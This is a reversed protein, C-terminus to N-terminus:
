TLKVANSNTRGAEVDSINALTVQAINRLAEKTFFAQHATIVVNPFSQLLQFTDDQIVTDSLDEFFLSGEREYVDIGFYGVRGSKIAEIVANTDILGGRSTNILMSGPKFHQISEANILHHTSPLLPCHLSIIDSRTLLIPLEVYDVGIDACAPNVRVDYALLKCGFGNMIQAFCQGIKGTGVIGITKGHLDFGLLGDLSFNDDRVRNYARYLKRNLAMILGVAHEAVAYPSYAPVRMVTIGLEEAVSLNINNFGACRLAILKTGTAAIARLTDEDLEDNIFVCVAPFGAALSATKPTLRPEFFTLEHNYDENIEIFSHKDYLKTNFFATRM